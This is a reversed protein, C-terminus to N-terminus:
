IHTNIDFIEQIILRMLSKKKKKIKYIYIHSALDNSFKLHLDHHCIYIDTYINTM